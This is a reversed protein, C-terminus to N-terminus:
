VATWGGDIRLSTGTVFAAADSLLFVAAEAVETATGLRGLPIRSLVDAEFRPDRLMPETLDTRIFTPAITNVRIARPALELAFAKTMGEVAHKSACYVTRNPAGVHGMQSSVTILGGARDQRIMADACAKLLFYGARTNLRFVTDFAEESVQSAPGPQNTGAANVMGDIAPCEKFFRAVAAVDTVDLAQGYSGKAEIPMSGSRSIGVVRAGAATIASTCAAGIGRSAGVVVITREALTRSPVAAQPTVDTLAPPVSEHIV